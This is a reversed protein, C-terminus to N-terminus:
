IAMIFEFADEGRDYDITDKKTCPIDLNVDESILKVYKNETWISDSLYSMKVQQLQREANLEDIDADQADVYPAGYIVVATTLPDPNFVYVWVLTDKPGGRKNRELGSVFAEGSQRQVVKIHQHKADSHIEYYM